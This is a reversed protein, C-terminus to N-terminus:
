LKAKKKPLSESLLKNQLEYIRFVLITSIDLFFNKQPIRDRKGYESM